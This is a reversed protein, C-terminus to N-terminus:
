IDFQEAVSKPVLEINHERAKEIILPMAFFAGPIMLATAFAATKVFETAQKNARSLENATADGKAADAYVQAMNMCNDSQIEVITRVKEITETLEEVSKPVAKYLKTTYQFFDAPNNFISM